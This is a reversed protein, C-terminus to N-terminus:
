LDCAIEFYDGNRIGAEKVTQELNLEIGGGARVLLLRYNKDTKLKWAALSAELLEKATMNYRVRLGIPAHFLDPDAVGKLVSWVVLQNDQKLYNPM